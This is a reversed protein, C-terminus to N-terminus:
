DHIIKNLILENILTIILMKSVHHFLINNGVQVHSYMLEHSYIITDM